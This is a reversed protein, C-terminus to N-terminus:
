NEWQFDLSLGRNVHLHFAFTFAFENNDNFLEKPPFPFPAAVRVARVAEEDLYAVGSTNLVMLDKLGGNDDITVTLVTVLERRGLLHGEPDNRAIQQQPAWAAGIRARIRNFFPAHRWQWANLETQDGTVVDDIADDHSGQHPLSPRNLDPRINLPDNLAPDRKKKSLFRDVAKPADNPLLNALRAHNLRARKDKHAFSDREALFRAEKPRIHEQKEDLSIVTKQETDITKAPSAQKPEQLWVELAQTKYDKQKALLRPAVVLLALHMGVSILLSLAFVKRFNKRTNAKHSIAGGVLCNDLKIHNSHKRDEIM